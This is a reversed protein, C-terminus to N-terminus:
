NRKWHSKGASLRAGVLAAALLEADFRSLGGDFEMIAAREEFREWNEGTLGIELPVAPSLRSVSRIRSDGTGRVSPWSPSVPPCMAADLSTKRLQPSLHSVLPSAKVQPKMSTGRTGRQGGDTEAESLLSFKLKM